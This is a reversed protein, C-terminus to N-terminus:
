YDVARCLSSTQVVYCVMGFHDTQDYGMVSTLPVGLLRRLRGVVRRLLHAHAFRTRAGNKNQQQTGNKNQQQTYATRYPTNTYFNNYM